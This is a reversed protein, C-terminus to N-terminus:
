LTEIIIKITKKICIIAIIKRNGLIYPLLYLYKTFFMIKGESCKM